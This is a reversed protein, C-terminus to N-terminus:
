LKTEQLCLVMPHKELVLRRVEETKEGGGLGRVNYTLIKMPVESWGQGGSCRGWVVCGVRDEGGGDVDDAVESGRAARWDRRGERSLLNFTNSTDCHYKVGVDEAVLKPEGHLHVWNVWDNEVYSFSNKTSVTTSDATAKSSANVVYVKRKRKQKKLIKLIQKRDKAPMRVIKKMFGVSNHVVGVKKKKSTVNGSLSISKENVHEM